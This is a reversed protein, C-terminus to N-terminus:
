GVVSAILGFQEEEAEQPAAAPRAKTAHPRERLRRRIGADTQRTRQQVNRGCLQAFERRGLSEFVALIRGIAVAANGAVPHTMFQKGQEAALIGRRDAVQQQAGTFEDASLRVEHLRFGTTPSQGLTALAEFQKMHRKLPRDEPLM